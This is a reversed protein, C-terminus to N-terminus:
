RKLLMMWGCLKEWGGGGVCVGRKQNGRLVEGGLSERKEGQAGEGGDTVTPAALSRLVQAERGSSSHSGAVISLANNDIAEKPLNRNIVSTGMVNTIVFM